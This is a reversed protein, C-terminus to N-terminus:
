NLSTVGADKGLIDIVHKPKFRIEDGEDVPAEPFPQNTLLGVYEGTVPDQEKVEVWMREAPLDPNDYEFIVKAYNGPAIFQRLLRSPIYFTEAHRKHQQEANRLKYLTTYKMTKDKQIFHM